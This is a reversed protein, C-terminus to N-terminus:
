FCRFSCMSFKLCLFVACTLLKLSLPTPFVVVSVQVFSDSTDRASSYAPSFRGYNIISQMGFEGSQSFGEQTRSKKILPEVRAELLATCKFLDCFYIPILFHGPWIQSAHGQLFSAHVNVWGSKGFCVLSLSSLSWFKTLICWSRM